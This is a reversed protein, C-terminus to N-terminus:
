AEAPTKDLDMFGEAAIERLKDIFVSVGTYTIVLIDEARTMAVYLLKGGAILADEKEQAGLDNKSSELPLVETGFLLVAKYQLGKASHITSVKLNPSCAHLKNQAFPANLWDVPTIDGLESCLLPVMKYLSKVRAPYLVAIEAPQLPEDLLHGNFKGDLLDRVVKVIEAIAEKPESREILLPKVGVSRFAKGADLEVEEVGDEGKTPSAAPSFRSAVQIIESANRYNTRFYTTRGQAQIGISKWTIKRTKYIGQMGDGVIVFDGDYRDALLELLCKFWSPDFDQAEDVLIMNYKIDGINSVSNIKKLIREGFDGPLENKKLKTKWHTSAIEHFHMVTIAQYDKLVERLYVALTINFCTVLIRASPNEQALMKARAILMVTKGSGAVGWLLRHGAGIGRAEREQAMDLIKLVPLKNPAEIETHPSQSASGYAPAVITIEPHIIARLANIQEQSMCINWRMQMPFYEKFVGVWQSENYEKELLEMLENRSMTNETPFFPSIDGAPADPFDKRDINSLVVMSAFPFCFKGMYDGKDHLLCSCFSSAKCTNMLNFMYDRAQRAPHMETAGDVHANDNDIKSIGKLYWGKVEIVLVGVTPFIVIFDPYRNRIVPEYYVICEDPLRKLLSFVREEGKSAKEPLRDPVMQAM